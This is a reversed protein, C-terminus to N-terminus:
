RPRYPTQSMQLKRLAAAKPSILEVSLKNRCGQNSLSWFSALPKTIRTLAVLRSTKPLRSFQSWCEAVFIMVCDCAM